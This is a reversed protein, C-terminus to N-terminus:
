PSSHPRPSRGFCTPVRFLLVDACHVGAILEVAAATVNQLVADIGIPSSAKETLAVMTQRLLEAYERDDM